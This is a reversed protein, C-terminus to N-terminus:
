NKDSKVFDIAESIKILDFVLITRFKLGILCTNLSIVDVLM